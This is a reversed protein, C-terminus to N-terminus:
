ALSIVNVQIYKQIDVQKQPSSYLWKEAGWLHRNTASAAGRKATAPAARWPM